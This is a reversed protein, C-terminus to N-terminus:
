VRAIGEKLRPLLDIRSQERIKFRRDKALIKVTLRCKGVRYDLDAKVDEETNWMGEGGDINTAQQNDLQGDMEEAEEADFAKSSGEGGNDDTTGDTGFNASGGHQHTEPDHYEFGLDDEDTIVVPGEIVGGSEVLWIAKELKPHRCTIWASTNLMARHEDGVRARTGDNAFSKDSRWFETTLNLEVLNPLKEKLFECFGGLHFAPDRKHKMPLGLTIKQILAMNKRSIIASLRYKLHPFHYSEFSNRGYLIPLGESCFRRCVRLINVNGIHMKYKSIEYRPAGNDFEPSRPIHLRIASVEHDVVNDKWARPKNQLLMEFIVERCHESISFITASPKSCLVSSKIKRTDSAVAVSTINVVVQDPAPVLAQEVQNM